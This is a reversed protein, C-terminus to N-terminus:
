SYSWQKIACNCKGKNRNYWSRLSAFRKNNLEYFTVMGVGASSDKVWMGLEYKNTTKSFRPSAELTYIKGGRSVTLTVYGRQIVSERNIYETVDSNSEIEVDDIKLIIDGIKLDIDTNDIDIVLVGTALLKIGVAEGGLVFKLSDTVKEFEYTSTYAINEKFSYNYIATVLVLMLLIIMLIHIRYAKFILSLMEKANFIIAKINEM